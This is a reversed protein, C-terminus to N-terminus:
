SGCYKEMLKFHSSVTNAFTEGLDCNMIEGTAMEEHEDIEVSIYSFNKSSNRKGATLGFTIDHEVHLCNFFLTLLFLHRTNFIGRHWKNEQRGYGTTM